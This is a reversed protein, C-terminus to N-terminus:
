LFKFDTTIESLIVEDELGTYGSADVAPLNNLRISVGNPLILRQWIVLARSQGFAIVSDYTGIIRSGQPILLYQGTVTDYVPQTVQAIVKGPLDSNLGTILAASILTGAMVQYPSIPKQQVYPNYISPDPKQTLFARKEAQKNQDEESPNTVNSPLINALSQNQGKKQQTLKSLASSNISPTANNKAKHTIRVFLPAMRIKKDFAREPKPLPPKQKYIPTQESTPQPPLAEYSKPLANLLEPTKAPILERVPNSKQPAPRLASLYVIAILFASGCACLAILNRTNVRRGNQSKPHVEFSTNPNTDGEHSSPNVM